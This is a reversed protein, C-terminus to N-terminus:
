DIATLWHKGRSPIADPLRPILTKISELPEM